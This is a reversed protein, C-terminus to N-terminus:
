LLIYVSKMWCRTRTISKQILIKKHLFLKIILSELSLYIWKANFFYIPFIVKKFFCVSVSCELCEFTIDDNGNQIMLLIIKKMIQTVNQCINLCLMYEKKIYLVNLYVKTNNKEFMIWNDKGTPYNIGKWNYKIM